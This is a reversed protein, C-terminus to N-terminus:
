FILKRKERYTSNVYDSEEAISSDPNLRDNVKNTNSDSEKPISGISLM